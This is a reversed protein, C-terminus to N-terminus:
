IPISSRSFCKALASQNQSHCLSRNTTYTLDLSVVDGFLKYNKRSMADAWFVRMLIGQEDVEFDWRLTM